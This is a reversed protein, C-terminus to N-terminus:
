VAPFILEVETGKGLTSHVRIEARWSKLLQSVISLGLGTGEGQPKNTFFPDFIKDLDHPAIGSGYDKITVIIQSKNQVGRIEIRGPPTTAHIANSLLNIWIQPLQGPAALVKLDNPCDIEIQIRDKWEHSLLKIATKLSDLVPTPEPRKDQSRGFNRLEDILQRSRTAGESINNALTKLDDLVEGPRMEGRYRPNEPLPLSSLYAIYDKLPKLNSYIYTTPNNIEHAIGSLLTGLSAMKERQVLLMQAIRLRGMVTGFLAAIPFFLVLPAAFNLPTKGKLIFVHVAAALPILFALLQGTLLSKAIRHSLDHRPTKCLLALRIIWFGYSLVANGIVLLEWFPWALPARYFTWIYPIILLISSIYHLTLLYPRQRLLPPREPYTLAFHSMYAPLLGFNALFLPTAIHDSHFDFSAMLHYAVGLNFLYFPFCGNEGRMLGYLMVALLMAMVGSAFPMFFCKLFDGLSFRMPEISAQRSNQLDEIRFTHPADLLTIRESNRLDARAGTWDFQTFTGVMNNELHLFGPFDRGIWERAHRFYLVSSAVLLVFLVTAAIDTKRLRTNSTM